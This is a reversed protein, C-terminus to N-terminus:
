GFTGSRSPVVRLDEAVGVVCLHHPRHSRNAPTKDRDSILTQVEGSPIVQDRTWGQRPTATRRPNWTQVPASRSDAPCLGPSSGDPHRTM